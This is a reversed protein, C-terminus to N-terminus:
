EESGGGLLAKVETLIDHHEEQDWEWRKFPREINAERLMRRAKNGKIGYTLALEKLTIINDPNKVEAKKEKKSKKAKVPKEKETFDKAEEEAKEVADLTTLAELLEAKKLTWWNKVKRTKALEKLEQATMTEYNKNMM